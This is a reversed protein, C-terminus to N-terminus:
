KTWDQTKVINNMTTAGVIKHIVNQMDPGFGEM